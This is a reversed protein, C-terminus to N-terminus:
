LCWALARQSWWRVGNSQACHSAAVSADDAAHAV